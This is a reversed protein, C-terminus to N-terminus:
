FPIGGPFDDKFDGDSIDTVHDGQNMGDGSRKGGSFSLDSVHLEIKSRNQGQENQWRNQRLQGSVVLGTGKTLSGALSVARKGWLVCDFFNAYDKWGEETMYGTNNALSFKLMSAGSTTYRLEADKTLNGKIVVVNTDSM